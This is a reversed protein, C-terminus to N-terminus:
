DEKIFINRIRDVLSDQLELVDEDSLGDNLKELVTFKMTFIEIQKKIEIYQENKTM